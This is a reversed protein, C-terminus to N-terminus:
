AGFLRDLGLRGNEANDHIQPLMLVVADRFAGALPVMCRIKLVSTYTKCIFSEFEHFLQTLM